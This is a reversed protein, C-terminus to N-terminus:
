VNHVNKVELKHVIFTELIKNTNKMLYDLRISLHDEEVQMVKRHTKCYAIQDKSLWRIKKSAYKLVLIKLEKSPYVTRNWELFLVNKM